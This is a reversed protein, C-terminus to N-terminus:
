IMENLRTIALITASDSKESKVYYVPTGNKNEAKEIIFDNQWHPSSKLLSYIKELNNSDDIKSM